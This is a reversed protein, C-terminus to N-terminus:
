HFPRTGLNDLICAGVKLAQAEIVDTTLFGSKGFVAEENVTKFHEWGRYGAYRALITLTTRYPNSKYDVYDWLRKITSVSLSEGMEKRLIDSFRAFDAPGSLSFGLKEEIQTRLLEIYEKQEKKKQDKENEKDIAKGQETDM